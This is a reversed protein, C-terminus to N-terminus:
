VPDYPNIEAKIKIHRQIPISELLFLPEPNEKEM